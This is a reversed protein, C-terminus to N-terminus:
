LWVLQDNKEGSIKQVVVKADHLQKRQAGGSWNRFM